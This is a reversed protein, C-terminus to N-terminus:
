ARSSMSPIASSGSSARSARRATPRPRSSCAGSSEGAAVRAQVPDTAAVREGPVSARPWAALLAGDSRVLAFSALNPNENALSRFYDRFFSPSLSVAVIGAFRGDPSTRRVTANMLALGTQRGTVVESVGVHPPGGTKHELFYARDGVYAAPDVPYRDSRALARGASDWVNLNAVAPLGAVIDALRRHVEAERRRVLADDGAAADDARRAIGEAIELVHSAQGQVLRGARLAAAEADGRANEYGWWAAGVFATAPVVVAGTLVARLWHALPTDARPQTEDSTADPRTDMRMGCAVSILISAFFFAGM